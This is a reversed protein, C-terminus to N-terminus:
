QIFGHTKLWGKLTEFSEYKDFSFVDVSDDIKKVLNSLVQGPGLELFHTYGDKVMNEITTTFRVPHSVQNTMLTKLESQNLLAGTVNMYVDCTPEHIEVSTLYLSLKKGAEAMLSSHFAGSVALPIIRKAGQEKLKLTTEELASAEGSIVTQVPSNYNAPQMIGTNIHSLAQEVQEPSLGIVAAMVGPNKAAAESMFLSRNYVLKIADEFKFINAATLASYEGLSFGAVGSFPVNLSKFADYALMTHTFVALQTHKTDNLEHGTEIVAKLDLGTIQQVLKLYLNSHEYDLGMQPYQAGQGSCLLGLKAM